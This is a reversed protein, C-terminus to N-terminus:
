ELPFNSRGVSIRGRIVGQQSALAFLAHTDLVGQLGCIFDVVNVAVVSARSYRIKRVCLQLLDQQNDQNDIAGQGDILHWM